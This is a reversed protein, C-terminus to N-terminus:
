LLEITNRSALADISLANAVQYTADSPSGDMLTVVCLSSMCMPEMAGHSLAYICVGKPLRRLTGDASLCAGRISLTAASNVSSVNATFAHNSSEAADRSSRELERYKAGVMVNGDEVCVKLQLGGAHFGCLPLSQDLKLPFWPSPSDRTLVFDGVLVCAARGGSGLHARKTRVANSLKAELQQLYRVSSVNVVCRTSFIANSLYGFCKVVLPQLAGDKLLEEDVVFHPMDRKVITVWVEGEVLLTRTATDIAQLYAIDVGRLFLAVDRSIPFM